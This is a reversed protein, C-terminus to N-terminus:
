CQLAGIRWDRDRLVYMAGSRRASALDYEVARSNTCRLEVKKVVSSLGGYEGAADEDSLFGASVAGSNGIAARWVAAAARQRTGSDCQFTSVCLNLM